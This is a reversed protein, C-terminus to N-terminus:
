IQDKSIFNDEINSDYRAPITPAPIAQLVENVELFSLGYAVSLRDFDDELLNPAILNSPKLLPRPNALLWSCNPPHRMEAELARYYKMRAGGGCLFMPTNYLDDQSLYGEHWARWMTHGRVQAVVKKMFFIHDPDNINKVKVGFFYDLYSEPIAALKDTHFKSNRISQIDFNFRDMYKTILNIWWDVRMRHLNMVGNLGVDTKYFKFSWKGAKAPEVHFLSSDVTGAGVDVMLYINKANKDFSNSSVFGFIQAAIEPVISIEAFDPNASLYEYQLQRVKDIEVDTFNEDPLLSLHWAYRCLKNFLDKHAGNLHNASPLGVALKWLINSGKYILGHKEFFWGRAHKILLALFAVIRDQASVDNENTLLGLKLDRFITEGESLSYKLDQKYLRSPLLYRKVGVNDNFEVAFSKDIDRDGIVIKASSTGLDLGIVLERDGVPMGECIQTKSGDYKPKKYFFEDPLNSITYVPYESAFEIEVDNISNKLTSSNKSKESYVSLGLLTKNSSDKKKEEPASQIKKDFRPKINKNRVSSPHSAKTKIKDAKKVEPLAIGKDAFANKLAEKISSAM